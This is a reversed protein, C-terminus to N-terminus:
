QHSPLLYSEVATKMQGFDWLILFEEGITGHIRRDLRRIVTKPEESVFEVDCPQDM